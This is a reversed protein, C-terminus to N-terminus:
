DILEESFDVHIFEGKGKGLAVKTSTFKM